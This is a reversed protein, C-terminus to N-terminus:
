RGVRCRRTGDQQGGDLGMLLPEQAGEPDKSIRGLRERSSEISAGREEEVGQMSEDCKAESAAKSEDDRKAPTWFTKSM